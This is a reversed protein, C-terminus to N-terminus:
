RRHLYRGTRRGAGEIAKRAHRGAVALV